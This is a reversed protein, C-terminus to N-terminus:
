RAWPPEKGKAYRIGETPSADDVTSEIKAGSAIHQQASPPPPAVVPDEPVEPLQNLFTLYNKLFTESKKCDSVYREQLKLLSLPTHVRKQIISKIRSLCKAGKGLTRASIPCRGPYADYITRAVHDLVVEDSVPKVMLEQLDMVKPVEIPKVQSIDYTQLGAPGKYDGIGRREREKELEMALEFAEFCMGSKNNDTFTTNFSCWRAFIRSATDLVFKENM